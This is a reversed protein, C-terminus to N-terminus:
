YPQWPFGGCGWAGVMWRYLWGTLVQPPFLNRSTLSPLTSEQGQQYRGDTMDATFAGSQKRTKEAKRARRTAQESHGHKKSVAQAFTAYVPASALQWVSERTERERSATSWSWPGRGSDAAASGQIGGAKGSVVLWTPNLSGKCLGRQRRKHWTGKLFTFVTRKLLKSIILFTM